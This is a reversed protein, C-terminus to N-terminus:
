LGHHKKIRKIIEQILQVQDERFNELMFDLILPYHGEKKLSAALSMLGLPPTIFSSKGPPNILIIKM